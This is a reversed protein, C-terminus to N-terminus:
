AFGKLKRNKMIQHKKAIQIQLLLLYTPVACAAVKDFEDFDTLFKEM